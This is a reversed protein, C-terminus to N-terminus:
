IPQSQDLSKRNELKTKTQNWHREDPPRGGTPDGRPGPTNTQRNTQIYKQPSAYWKSWTIKSKINKPLFEVKKKIKFDLM